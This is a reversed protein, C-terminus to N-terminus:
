KAASIQSGGSSNVTGLTPSGRYRLTSGGSLNADLRGSLNITARTGGSLTVGANGTTVFEGLEIPSGASSNLSLGTSAGKLTVRSGGSATIAAVGAQLEGDLQSGGSINLDLYETSRFGAIDTHSGGSLILGRMAPMTVNARLTFNRYSGPQLGIYLTDGRKEVILYQSLNDDATVTTAFAAGQSVTLRAGHGIEVRTFGTLDYQKDMLRGSGTVNAGTGTFAFSCATGLALLIILIPLALNKM